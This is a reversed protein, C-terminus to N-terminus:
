RDHNLLEIYLTEKYLKLSQTHLDQKWMEMRHERCVFTKWTCGRSEGMFGSFRIITSGLLIGTNEVIILISKAEPKEVAAAGAKRIM